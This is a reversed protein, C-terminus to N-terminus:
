RSAAVRGLVPARRGASPLDGLNSILLVDSGRHLKVPAAPARRHAAASMGKFGGSLVPGSGSGGYVLMARRVYEQTEPYPPVGRYRQVAGEGANYAALTRVLDGDFMGLLDSLYAAGGRINEHPDFSDRVGYRRATGPMLQMLGRAGKRSVARPNFNSEVLMVSKVLRPDVREREAHRRISDDFATAAERRTLLYADSPTKGGVKWGSGVNNFIVAGGDAKRILKVDGRSTGPLVLLAGAACLVALRTMGPSTYGPPDEEPRPPSGRRRGRSGRRSRRTSGRPTRGAPRRSTPKGGGRGGVIPAMAKALEDASVRSVLDSTVAALLTVKGESETGLLVVGSGLKGRFTDALNRLENAPLTPVRRALIKAGGAEVVGDEGGARKGSGGTALEVKLKAIEKESEKLRALLDRLKGPLEEAPVQATESLEGLIQEDRTLREVAGLSTIAEIRRVGAALGRDSLVKFAGIEGTRGVHCGGCLETSFGPVDVVRVREGYKEGFFMMAGKAKAEDM